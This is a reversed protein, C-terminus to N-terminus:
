EVYVFSTHACEVHVYIYIAILAFFLVPGQFVESVATITVVKARKMGNSETESSTPSIKTMTNHYFYFKYTCLWLCGSLPVALMRCYNICTIVAYIYRCKVPMLYFNADHDSM